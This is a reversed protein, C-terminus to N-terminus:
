AILFDQFTDLIGVGMQLEHRELLAMADLYKILWLFALGPDFQRYLTSSKPAGSFVRTIQVVYIQKSLLSPQWKLIKSCKEFGLSYNNRIEKLIM